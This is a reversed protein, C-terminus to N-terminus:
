DEEMLGPPLKMLVKKENFDIDILFAAVFPIEWTRPSGESRVVLLDQPGNSSFGEIVGVPTGSDYVTFGLIERLYLREGPESVLLSSDIFVFKKNLGEAATRDDVSRLKLLFGRRHPRHKEVTFFSEPKQTDSGLGVERLRDLFDASHSFVHVLLEGRLGHAEIIKGILVETRQHTM